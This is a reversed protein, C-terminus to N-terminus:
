QLCPLQDVINITAHPPVEFIQGEGMAEQRLFRKTSEHGVLLVNSDPGGIGATMAILSSVIGNNQVKVLVRRLSTM